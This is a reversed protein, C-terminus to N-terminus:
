KEDNNRKLKQIIGFSIGTVRVVQRISAGTSCLGELIANRQLKELNAFENPSALGYSERLICRLSEDSVRFRGDNDIDLIELSEDVPTEVFERLETLPIRKLVTGVNCLPLADPTFRESEKWSSWPYDNPEKNAWSKYDNLVTGM